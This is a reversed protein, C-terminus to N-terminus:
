GQGTEAIEPLTFFFTSGKDPESEAWISGELREIIRKSLALGVGNGEYGEKKHLRSFLIFLKEKSAEPFGVGNDKVFYVTRDEEKRFGIEIVAKERMKTFKVANSILNAYVQRLLSPVARCHPLDATEITIERGEMDAKLSEVAQRVLDSPRTRHPSIEKSGIRSLELLANVMDDMQLTLQQILKLYRQGEESVSPGHNVILLQAYGAISRLPTRLEHSVSYTFADLEKLAKELEETRKSLISAMEEDSLGGSSKGAQAAQGVDDKITNLEQREDNM